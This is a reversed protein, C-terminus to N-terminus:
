AQKRASLELYRRLHHEALNGNIGSADLVQELGLSWYMARIPFLENAGLYCAEDLGEWVCHNIIGSLPVISRVGAARLAFTAWLVCATANLGIIKVDAGSDQLPLFVSSNRPTHPDDPHLLGDDRKRLRITRPFKEAIELFEALTDGDQEREVFVIRRWARGESEMITAVSARFGDVYRELWAFGRTHLPKEQADMVLLIPRREPM